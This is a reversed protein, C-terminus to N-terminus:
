RQCLKGGQLYVRLGRKKSLNAIRVGDNNECKPYPNKVVSPIVEYGQSAALTHEKSTAVCGSLLLLVSFMMVVRM